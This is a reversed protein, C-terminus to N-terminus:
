ESEFVFDDQPTNVFEFKITRDLGESLTCAPIFGSNLIKAADFQTTACFKKVRVSSISFKKGTIKALLDFCYGGLMGLFYPAKVSPIKRGLSKGVVDVLENM